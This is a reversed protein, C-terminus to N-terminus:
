ISKAGRTQTVKRGLGADYRDGARGNIGARMVNKATVDANKNRHLRGPLSLKAFLMKTHPRMTRGKVPGDPPISVM